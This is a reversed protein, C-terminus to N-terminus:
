QLELKFTMLVFLLWGGVLKETVIKIFFSALTGVRNAWQIAVLWSSIHSILKKFCITALAM